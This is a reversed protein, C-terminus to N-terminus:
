FLVQIFTCVVSGTSFLAPYQRRYIRGQSYMSHLCGPIYTSVSIPAYWLSIDGMSIYEVEFSSTFKYYVLMFIYIIHITTYSLGQPYLIGTYWRTTIECM